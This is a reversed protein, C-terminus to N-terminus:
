ERDCAGVYHGTISFRTLFHGSPSTMTFTSTGDLTDGGHYHVVGEITTTRSESSPCNITWTATDGNVERKEMTCLTKAGTPPPKPLGPPDTASACTTVVTTMGEPGISQGPGLQMGPLQKTLGPLVTSIEWKGPKIADQADAACECAEAVLMVVTVILIVRASRVTAEV